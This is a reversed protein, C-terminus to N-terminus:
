LRENAKTALEAAKDLQPAAGRAMDPKGGGKGGAIPALEQILKGAMLGSARADDGCLAGLHLKEGDNVICFAAHTFQRSKLGNLLEQLLAAPGETSIVLNKELAYDELLGAAIKAAGAAQAKKFSKDAEITANKLGELHRLSDQYVQNKQEFSGSDLMGVMIHPFETFNV